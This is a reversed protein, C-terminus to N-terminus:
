DNSFFSSFVQNMPKISFSKENETRPHIFELKYACLAIKRCDLRRSTERSDASGYRDDGLLPMGAHSLQVRVQHHRGTELRVELLTLNGRRGRVKYSLRATKSDEQLDGPKVVYSCNSLADHRLDDELEGDDQEPSGLVLAYYYKRMTHEATQKSLGAAAKRNRAFVLLGEVPQDLRHVVGVYPENKHPSTRSLYNKLASVMDKQGLRATQTALDAPKYVVIIDSDEYLITLEMM